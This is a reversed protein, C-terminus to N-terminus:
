CVVNYQLNGAVDGLVLNLINLGVDPGGDQTFKFAETPNDARGFGAAKVNRYIMERLTMQKTLRDCLPRDFNAEPCLQKILNSLGVAFAWVANMVNMLVTEDPLMGTQLAYENCDEENDCTFKESWFQKWWPNRDNNGYKLSLVYNWFPEVPASDHHVIVAGLNSAAEDSDMDFTGVITFENFSIIGSKQARNLYQVFIKGDKPETLLIVVRAQRNKALKLQTIISNLTTTNETPFNVSDSYAICIGKDSAENKFTAFRDQGWLGKSYIVSVFTWNLQVLVDVIAANQTKYPLATRLTFPYEHVDTLSDAPSYPSINPMHNATFVEAAMTAPGNGPDNIFGWISKIDVSEISANVTSFYNPKTYLKKLESFVEGSSGCSDIAFTGIILGNMVDNNANMADVAWLYAELMLIGEESLPGCQFPVDGPEHIPFMAGLTVHQPSPQYLFPKSSIEQADQRRIVKSDEDVTNHTTSRTVAITTTTIPPDTEPIYQQVIVRKCELCNTMNTACSSSRGSLFQTTAQNM